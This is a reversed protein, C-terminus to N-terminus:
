MMKAIILAPTRHMRQGEVNSRGRFTFAIAAGGFSTKARISVM